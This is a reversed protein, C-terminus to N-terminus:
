AVYKRKNIYLQHRPRSFAVYILRQREQRKTNRLIDKVDVFVRDFTSGQSRHVTICYCHRIDAFLEKVKWFKSWLQRSHQHDAKAATAMDELQTLYRAEEDEHLVEVVHQGALYLPELVLQLTRYETGSEEDYVSSHENIHHVICEEDTGLVIEGEASKVPSGTVVREGAIYRACKKGFLKHRIATNIQNVRRNSWSLVRQADLDTNEDFQETIFTVFQAALVSVIQEGDAQPSPFAKDAMMATRLMGNVSLLYGDSQRMNQELRFTPFETFIASVNERVPPLQLDDGMGVLATNFQQCDPILYKFLAIRSLMSAEDVVVVDFLEIFGKGARIAFKRDENPLMALGLASHTTQFAVNDMSLGFQRAAKEMQKVAKNTPATFLVKLGASLMREAASMICYTKGTGGAGVLTMFQEKKELVNNVIWDTGATQDENLM